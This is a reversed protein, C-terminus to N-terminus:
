AIAATIALGTLTGFFIAGLIRGFLSAYSRIPELYGRWLAVSVAPVFTFLFFSGERPSNELIGARHIAALMATSWICVGAGVLGAWFPRVVWRRWPSPRVVPPEAPPDPPAPEESSEM